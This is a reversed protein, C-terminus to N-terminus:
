LHEIVEGATFRIKPDRAHPDDDARYGFAMGLVARYRTGELSLVADYQAPIMGGIICSDVRLNAAAHSIFGAALHIQSELYAKAAEPTGWFFSYGAYKQLAAAAQEDSIGREARQLDVYRQLDQEDIDRRACLVVFRAADRVQSQGFSASCLAERLEPSDIVLFKWPQLGLSSPCLRFAAELDQWTAEPIAASPNFKKTAYRWNLTDTETSM